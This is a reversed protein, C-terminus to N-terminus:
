PRAFLVTFYGGYTSKPNYIYGIGIESIADFLINDRHVQSNMWWSFAGETTGGFAPDGVYINEHASNANAYGQSAARDYWTSGDSGVHDIFDQCAMDLSHSM